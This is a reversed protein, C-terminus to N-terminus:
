IVQTMQKCGHMVVLTTLINSHKLWGLYKMEMVLPDQHELVQLRCYMTRSSSGMVLAILDLAGKAVEHAEDFLVDGEVQLLM